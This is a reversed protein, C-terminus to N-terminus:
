YYRKESVFIQSNGSFAYKMDTTETNQKGAGLEGYSNGYHNKPIYNIGGNCMINPANQPVPPHWGGGGCSASWNNIVSTGSTSISIGETKGTTKAGNTETSVKTVGSCNAGGNVALLGGFDLEKCDALLFSM